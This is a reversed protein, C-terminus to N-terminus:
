NQKEVIKYEDYPNFYPCNYTSGGLFRQMEDEDLNVECFYCDDEEDYCYNACLTCDTAGKM